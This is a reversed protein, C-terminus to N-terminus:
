TCAKLKTYFPLAEEYLTKCHNPLPRESTKQKAFGSSRHVNKYWYKAWVGDEPIPGRSWSLMGEEFEIGIAACLQSLGRKPNALIDNSDIVAPELGNEILYDLIDAEYKLGIDQLTPEPIVQAFSAILQKPDRILLVNKMPLLYNWGLGEHHHAMNKLFVIGHKGELDKIQNIVVKQDSSMSLLTEERGPHDLRTKILYHAYFPEDVVKIKSHQAFSYMLATSINRPGSILNIIM